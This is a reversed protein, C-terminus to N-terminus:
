IGIVFFVFAICMGGHIVTSESLLILVLPDDGVVGAGAEEDPVDEYVGGQAFYAM